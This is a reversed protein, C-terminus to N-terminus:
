KMTQVDILSSGQELSKLKSHIEAVEKMLINIRNQLEIKEAQERQMKVKNENLEKIKSKEEKEIKQYESEM